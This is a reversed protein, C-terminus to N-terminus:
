DAGSAPRPRLALAVVLGAFGAATAWWALAVGALRITAVDHPAGILAVVTLLSLAVV